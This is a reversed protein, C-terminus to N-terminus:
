MHRVQIIGCMRKENLMMVKGGFSETVLEEGHAEAEAEQLASGLSDVGAGPVLSNVTMMWM